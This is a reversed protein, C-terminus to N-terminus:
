IIADVIPIQATDYQPSFANVDATKGTYEVHAGKGVVSMNAHSDLELRFEKDTSAFDQHNIHMDSVIKSIQNVYGADVNVAHIDTVDVINNNSGNVYHDSIENWSILNKSKM